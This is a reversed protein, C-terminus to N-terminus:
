RMLAFRDIQKVRRESSYEADRGDGDGDGHRLVLRAMAYVTHRRDAPEAPYEYAGEATKQADGM